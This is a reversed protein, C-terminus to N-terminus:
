LTLLPIVDESHDNQFVQSLPLGPSIGGNDQGCIRHTERSKDGLRLPSPHSVSPWSIRRGDTLAMVAKRLQLSCTPSSCFCPLYDNVYREANNLRWIVVSQTDKNVRATPLVGRLRILRHIPFCKGPCASWGCCEHLSYCQDDWCLEICHQSVRSASCVQSVPGKNHWAQPVPPPPPKKM